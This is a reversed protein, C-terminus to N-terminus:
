RRDELVRDAVTRGRGPVPESAGRPKRGGWAALGQAALDLVGPELGTTRAPILLAVVEGRKSIEIREGAEVRKLYASLRNKLERIGVMPM